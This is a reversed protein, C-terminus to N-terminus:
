EQDLAVQYVSPSPSPDLVVKKCVTGWGRGRVKNGANMGRLTGCVLPTFALAAVASLTTRDWLVADAVKGSLLTLAFLRGGRERVTKMAVFVRGVM